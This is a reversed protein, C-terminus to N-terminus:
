IETLQKGSLWDNLASILEVIQDETLQIYGEGIPNLTIQICRGRELGGSFSTLSVEVDEYEPKFFGGVDLRFNEHVQRKGTILKFATSM